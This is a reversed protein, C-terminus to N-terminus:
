FLTSSGCNSPECLTETKGIYIYIYIYIFLYFPFFLFPSLHLFRADIARHPVVGKTRKTAKSFSVKILISLSFFVHFIMIIINPLYPISLNDEENAHMTKQVTFSYFLSFVLLLAIIVHMCIAFTIEEFWSSRM